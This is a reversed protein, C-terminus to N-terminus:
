AAAAAPVAGVRGGAIIVGVHAWVPVVSSLLARLRNLNIGREDGLLPLKVDARVLLSIKRNRTPPWIPEAPSCTALVVCAVRVQRSLTGAQPEFRGVREASFGRARLWTDAITAVACAASSSRFGGVPDGYLRVESHMVMSM